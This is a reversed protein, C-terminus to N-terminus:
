FNSLEIMRELSKNAKKLTHEPIEVIYKENQLVDIINELSIKKMNSCIGASGASFFQKEPFMRILRDILGQETGIIFKGSDSKAVYSIMGSTSLAKDAIDIVEKNCEPHVIIKADPHIEKAKRIHEAQFKDHVYCYGEGAIIEKNTFRRVYDALNKDPVFIIKDAPLKNVIDEATSSTVCVDSVAKVETTTNVYAVVMADKHQAKLKNIEDPTIMQAMPCKAYPNPNLVKKQPSLIKATEAMFSVGCFVITNEKANRAKVSLGYSDGVYDAIEQIELPQYFHALIVANKEKKLQRIKQKLKTKKNM